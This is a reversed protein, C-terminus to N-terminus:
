IVGLVQLIIIVFMAALFLANWKITTKIRDTERTFEEKKVVEDEPLELKTPM